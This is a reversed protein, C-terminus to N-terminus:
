QRPLLVTFTAGGEPNNEAWIRGDHQEVIRRAIFLGLGTGSGNSKTTFFPDFIRETIEPAIGPGADQVSLAFYDTTALEAPYAKGPGPLLEGAPVLWTKIQIAGGGPQMADRANTLLNIVVQTLRNHDCVASKLNPALDTEIRVNFQGQFQQKVLTLSDEVIKNWDTVAIQPLGDLSYNRLVEVIRVCRWASQEIMEVYHRLRELSLANDDVDLSLNACAATIISIPNNLEHAISATLTGMGALRQTHTLSENLREVDHLNTVSILKQAGSEAAIPTITLAVPLSRGDLRRLVTERHIETDDPFELPLLHEPWFDHFPRGVLDPMDSGLMTAAAQNASSIVGNENIVLTGSSMSQLLYTFFQATSDNKEAVLPNIM